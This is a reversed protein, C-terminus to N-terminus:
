RTEEENPDEVSKPVSGALAKIFALLVENEDPCKEKVFHDALWDLLEPHTPRDGQTGFDSPTGVIGRGFHHMWIRNVLVRGTLPHRGDTLHRAYALRRGTTELEPDNAPIASEDGRTLVSLEGPSVEEAPQAHSGRRFLRTVPVKDPTEFLARVFNEQPRRANNSAM